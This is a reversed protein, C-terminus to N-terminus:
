LEQCELTFNLHYTDVLSSASVTIKLTQGTLVRNTTMGTRTAEVSSAGHSSGTITVGDIALLVTATGSSLQTTFSTVDFPFSAKQELVYDQNRYGQIMGGMTFTRQVDQTESAEQAIYLLQNLVLDLDDEALPSNNTFDVHLADKKTSRRILLIDTTILATGLTLVSTTKNLTYELAGPAAAAYTLATGNKTVVLQSQQSVLADNLLVIGAYSATTGTIGTYTVRSNYAM